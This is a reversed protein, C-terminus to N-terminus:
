GLGLQTRTLQISRRLAAVDEGSAAGLLVGRVTVLLWDAVAEPSAPSSVEGTRVAERYAKRVGTRIAEFHAKVRAIVAPDIKREALTNVMLCGRCGEPSAVFAALRDLFGRLARSGTDDLLPRVVTHAPGARYHDLAACFLEVKGGFANYLSSRNLGTAEALDDLSTGAYGKAWFTETARDIAEEEHFGRPRGM